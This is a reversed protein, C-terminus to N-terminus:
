KRTVMSRVGGIVALLVGFSCVVTAGAPTDVYYSVILGIVAALFGFLWGVALRLGIRKATLIAVSAPVVLFIFVMLVGVIKVSSTVVIGFTAYFLFDWWQPHALGHRDGDFTLAIFQKRFVWHVLGVLCYMGATTFVMAPTVTLVSGVLMYKIHEAGEPARDVALVAAATAVAYVIGIIAEQPIKHEVTRTAAFLGGGLLAFGVGFLYKM